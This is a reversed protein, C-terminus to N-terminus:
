EGREGAMRDLLGYVPLSLCATLIGQICYISFHQYIVRVPNMGAYVYMLLPYFVVTGALVAAFATFAASWPRNIEVSRTVAKVLLAQLVLVLAWGGAPGASIGDRLFGLFFGGACAAWAESRLALWVTVLTVPDPAYGRLLIGAPPGDLLLDLIGAALVALV